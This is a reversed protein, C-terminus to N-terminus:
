MLVTTLTCSRCCPCSHKMLLWEFLCSSHFIHKCCTIQVSKKDSTLRELCISCTTDSANSQNVRDDEADELIELTPTVEILNEVRIDRSVIKKVWSSLLFQINGIKNTDENDVYLVRLCNTKKNNGDDKDKDLKWPM